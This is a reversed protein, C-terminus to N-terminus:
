GAFDMELITAIGKGCLTLSYINNYAIFHVYRLIQKKTLPLSIYTQKGKICEVIISRDSNACWIICTQCMFVIM